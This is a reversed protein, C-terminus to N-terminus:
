SKATATFSATNNTAPREAITGNLDVDGTLAMAAAVVVKVRQPVRVVPITHPEKLGIPIRVVSRM